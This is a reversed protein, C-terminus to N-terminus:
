GLIISGISQMAEIWIGYLVDIILLKKILFNELEYTMMSTDHCGKCVEAEHEYGSNLFYWYCFFWANKLSKKNVGIGELIDNRDYYLM